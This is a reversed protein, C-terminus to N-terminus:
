IKILKVPHISNKGIRFLYLGSTLHSINIVNEKGYLKGRLVTQGSLSILSYDENRDNEKKKVILCNDERVLYVKYDDNKGPRDVSPNGPKLYHQLFPDLSVIHLKQRINLFQFYENTIYYKLGDSTTIGETQHFPLSIDIRRKNGSFFDPNNFDYLLFIFPELLPTYGCLAILKKSELYVAGTILGRVDLTNKRVATHTGPIKPLSYCTTKQSIWQKTFLYISDASVIFAECDFDTYNSSAPSFDTQDPYSFRITDIILRENVISNKSIRLIMLDTRNGSSNNGFDGIYIFDRDQSIEEWDRNVTGELTYSQIINGRVTDLSYLNIDDSDNHTWLRDNWIVLGSTEVLRNDLNLSIDPSVSTTSYICSGDNITASSNYNLAPPDTCGQIQATTNISYLMMLFVM